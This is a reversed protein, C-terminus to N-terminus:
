RCVARPHHGMPHIGVPKFSALAPLSVASVRGEILFGLVDFLFLDKGPKGHALMEDEGGRGTGAAAM